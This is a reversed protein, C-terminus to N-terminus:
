AAPKTLRGVIRTVSSRWDPLAFDFEREFASADLTSNRPRVARTPYDAGAIRRVTASPGGCAASVRFIEEAFEAWSCSGAGAVHWTRGLGRAADSRWSELVALVADALDLASTPSGRQDDVVGVEDREAALRLMTKVFNRGWPSYVWASRVILHRDNAARVQEEGALKSRGYVGLPNTPADERYAGDALGDFVYDTSIQIIAAGAAKAAAAVEGAADANIRWARKPEGEAQDVATYAAANIVADPAEERIAATVSGATELDARPRGVAVLEIGSQLAARERLARVLQGQSGTVVLKM